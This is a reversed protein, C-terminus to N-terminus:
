IVKTWFFHHPLAIHKTQPSMKPMTAFKLCAENDEYVKSSAIPDLVFAKSFTRFAPTRIKGSVDFTQIEKIVECIGILERMSQSLAINESEMTSLAIQNQLKSVWTLPCGMNMILFGTRSKVCIPDQDNESNWLGAFNVDVDCDVQLDSIPELILGKEKTGQLYRLIRKVAIAQSHQPAHTFRACQHVAFSIDPRSNSAQSICSCELLLQMNGHNMLRPVKKTVESLETIFAPTEVSNHNEIDSAKLAKNILGRQTLSFKRPGLKEIKGEDRLQFQHRQEHTSVGLGTIKREITKSDPSALITDDVYVLCIMNKKMFLCADLQSQM